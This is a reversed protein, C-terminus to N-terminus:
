LPPLCAAEFLSVPLCSYGERCEGEVRTCSPYCNSQETPRYILCIEDDSCGEGTDIACDISCIGDPFEIEGGLGLLCIGECDRDTECAEGNPAPDPGDGCGVSMFAATLGAAAMLLVFVRVRNM